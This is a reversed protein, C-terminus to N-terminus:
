VKLVMFLTFSIYNTSLSVSFTDCDNATLLYRENIVYLFYGHRDPFLLFVRQKPFIHQLSQNYKNGTVMWFCIKVLVTDSKLNQSKKFDLNTM